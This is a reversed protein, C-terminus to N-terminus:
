VLKSQSGISVQKTQTDLKAKCAKLEGRVEGIDDGCKKVDKGIKRVRKRLIVNGGNGVTSSGASLEDDQQVGVGGWPESCASGAISARSSCPSDAASTGSRMRRKSPAPFFTVTFSVWGQMSKHKLTKSTYPTTIDSLFDSAFFTIEPLTPEIRDKFYEMAMTCLDCLEDTVKLCKTMNPNNKMYRLINYVEDLIQLFINATTMNM